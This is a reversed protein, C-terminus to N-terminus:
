ARGRARELLSYLAPVVFVTLLTSLALGGLVISGVGRYLESGSGPFFVLPSLGALSTLTSMFIPRLRGEVSAGIAEALTAGAQLRVMAGEVVLIANNVVVGILIIFGVATLLDFGQSSLFADVFQLGLVGGAAAFPVTIMVALPAVFDEFLGTMLLFSIVVALLLVYGLRTKAQELDGASGALRTTIGFPVNGSEGERRLTEGILQIAEELAVDEPPSVDLTITRRREVRRIQTPGLAETVTAVSGLPVVQGTGTVVPASELGSATRLGYEDVGRAALVVNVKPDGGPGLEGIIAGDVLVDVAAGIDEGSMGLRVAQNRKPEVHLEPAGPELSPRPRVQAEPLAKKIAGLLQGAVSVLEPLDGGQVELEISRAGSISRGFLSARNAIAFMGPIKQLTRRYWSAAEATREGDEIGIGTFVRNPRGVYFWRRLEPTGDETERGVHPLVDAQVRRGVSMMEEVALGPPPVLVGFVFARNGTPLYEMPPLLLLVVTGTGALAALVVGLARSSRAVLWAVLQGVRDQFRRGLLVLRPVRSSTPRREAELFAAAFSPIVLVSVLLSFGVAFSIAVAVDRLIEGVEDQWRAVPLFVVITTLTSALVAGWVEKTGLLAAKAGDSERQRHTDINELVVIANDVVMGVAFAMGALSVVNITRGLAAMGLATGLTCVPIAISVVLSARWSRLFVLLVLVALLGGVVLNQRVLSLAAEIYDVQDDVVDIDLGRSAMQEDQIRQVEARVQRTVTLVNSGAERFLLFVLSQRDDSFVRARAKRLGYQVTAVDGLRIPGGEERYALVLEELDEPLEPELPTRVLLQRKGWTVDGASLNRLESRIRTRVDQLGLGRSALARPEFLVRVERDQGGILRSNAVGPIRDLRPQVNEAVWTRYAGPYRGDQATITIVALPPGTDDASDIIPQNAAEPYDPVQSLLNTARVLSEQIPTGVELELRLTGRDPEATAEMRVLGSLTKLADEQEELIEAEVEAPSAGPWNTSVSLTPIAIDPTLQIPLQTLALTGLLCVLLVGSLVSIPRRVALGILGGGEM